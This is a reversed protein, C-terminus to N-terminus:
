VDDIQRLAQRATRTIVKTLVVTALLGVSAAIWYVVGLETVSGDALAALDGVVKGTYVYLLTGPLMGLCAVMYDRPRVSTLGLAYNLINFPFLPSLRLLIVIKLGESEVARDIAAFRLNNQLKGEITKRAVTRALFFASTAGVSAGIFVLLLGQAIGFIAGGALTLLSGPVFAVTAIAYGLIFVIAGWMGMGDVWEVFRPISGVVERGFTVLLLIAGSGVALRLWSAAPRTRSTHGSAQVASPEPELPQM